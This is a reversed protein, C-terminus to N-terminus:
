RTLHYVMVGGKRAATDAVFRLRGGNYTASVEGNPAGDYTLAEVKMAAPLALEVQVKSRELLIPLEGWSELLSRRENAFKMKNSALNPMQLLLISSSETLNKGDLSMLAVTQYRDAGSLKMVKGAMDGSFTMVESRPTVIKLTKERANLTIEGNASTIVGNKELGSLASRAARSLGKEWDKVLPFLNQVGPFSDEHGLSGIRAYLGLESFADPYDGVSGPSGRLARVQEPTVCFAYAPEAMSVDGRMFLMYIIREAMQAQPDNVIDFGSPAQPNMMNYRSHSWAFRYLGDWDQLGAYGGILPGAEARFPNPNCFNFETVTYPKGFVRTPMLYRPILANRSIASKNSFAYPMRWEQVPFSPHDWYQHNDVFELHRRVETLTFKSTMNLDTILATLHLEDRLFRIQEQICKIQVENLFQIFLGGRSERNEPTDLGKEKLYEYYKAEYLPVLQPSRNWVSVLPDENILNLSYLAPDEAWTMGTYPNRHTLLNRAFAKWSAMATPSIPILGKMEFAYQEFTEGEREKVNDGPRMTRSAYLDLCSYIGHKKLEAFLYDLQDLTKPNLTSSQPSTPDVLDNEFHHFRVSNYGLRVAKTVFDDAWKKELYSSNGVLNPGFFRIRKEPADRFAFHGEKTVIVPGYKGAPADLYRSFDLASGAITNGSYELPLWDKDAVIYSPTEIQKLNMKRNGLTAGVVMWVLNAEDSPVFTVKKPTNGIQFQSLYLGVFSQKNEGTWAIAGNAFSYPQWWNGGDRGSVVPFKRTGGNPYEVIIEGILRKTAPTWASAHLLYLYQFPEKISTLDIEAKAPFKKQSTSLVICSKGGNEAPNIIDFNVGLATFKGAKIMRLDNEPGQDTWGGKGDELEDDQFGMNAASRLNVPVTYPSEVKINLVLTTDSIKGKWPEPSIRFLFNETWKRDDQIMLNFRGSLTVTKGNVEFQLTHVIKDEFVWIDKFKLPLEIKSGDVTVSRSDGTPVKMVLALTESAVAPNATFRSSYSVGGGKAAVVNTQVQFGAWEGAVELRDAARRPYGEKAKFNGPSLTLAHWGQSYQTWILHTNDIQMNGVADLKLDGPLMGGTAPPLLEIDATLKWNSVASQVFRPLLRVTFTNIKFSRNDQVRVMFSGAIRIQRNPLSIVVQDASSEHMTVQGDTNTLPLAIEEPGVYLGINPNGAPIDIALALSSTPIAPDATLAATYRFSSGGTSVVSEDVKFANSAGGGPMKGQVTFSGAERKPYGPAPTLSYQDSGKWEPGFHQLFFQVSNIKFAGKDDIKLDAPLPDAAVAGVALTLAALQPIWKKMQIRGKPNTFFDNRDM